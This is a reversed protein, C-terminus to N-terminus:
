ERVRLGTLYAKRIVPFKGNDDHWDILSNIGINTVQASLYVLKCDAPLDYELFEDRAVYLRKNLIDKEIAVYESVTTIAALYEHNEYYEYAYDAYCITGWNDGMGVIYAPVDELVFDIKEGETNTLDDIDDVIILNDGEDDNCGAFGGVGALLCCLYFMWKQM